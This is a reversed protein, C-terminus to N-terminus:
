CSAGVSLSKLGTIERYSGGGGVGIHLKFLKIRPLERQVFNRYNELTFSSVLVDFSSRLKKYLDEEKLFHELDNRIKSSKKIFEDNAIQNELESNESELLARLEGYTMFRFYRAPRGHKDQDANKILEAKREQPFLKRTIRMREKIPTSPNTLELIDYFRESSETQPEIKELKEM